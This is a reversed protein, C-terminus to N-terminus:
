GMTKNILRWVIDQEYGKGILFRAVKAKKDYQNKAKLTKLKKNLLTELENEYAKEDIERLAIEILNPHIGKERLGKRIKQRGWQNNKFKGKAYTKAFREENLFNEQILQTVLESTTEGDMNLAKLKEWVEKHSRERYACFKRARELAEERSFYQNKNYPKMTSNERPIM